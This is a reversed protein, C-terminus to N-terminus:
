LFGCSWGILYIEEGGTMPDVNGYLVSPNTINVRQIDEGLDGGCHAFQCSSRWVSFCASRLPVARRERANTRGPADRERERKTHCIYVFFLFLHENRHGGDSFNKNKIKLVQKEEERAKIGAGSPIWPSAAEGTEMMMQLCRYQLCAPRYRSVDPGFVPGHQLLAPVAAHSAPHHEMGTEPCCPCQRAGTPYCIAVFSWIM